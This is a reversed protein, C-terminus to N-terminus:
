PYFLAFSLLSHSVLKWVALHPWIYALFVHALMLVTSVSLFASFCSMQCLLKKLTGSNLTSILLTNFIGLNGLLCELYHRYHCQSDLSTPSFCNKMESHKLNLPQGFTWPSALLFKFSLSYDSLCCLRWCSAQLNFTWVLDIFEWDQIYLHGPRVGSWNLCLLQAKPRPPIICVLFCGARQHIQKKM